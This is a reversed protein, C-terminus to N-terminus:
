LRRVGSIKTYGEIYKLYTGEASFQTGALLPYDGYPGVSRSAGAADKIYFRLYVIYYYKEHQGEVRYVYEGAALAVTYLIGASGGHLDAAVHGYEFTLSCLIRPPHQTKM